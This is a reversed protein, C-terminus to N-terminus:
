KTMLMIRSAMAKFINPNFNKNFVIKPTNERDAEKDKNSISSGSGIILFSGNIDIIMPAQRHPEPKPSTKEALPLVPPVSIMPAIILLYLFMDIPRARSNQSKKMM